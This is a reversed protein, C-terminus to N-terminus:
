KFCRKRAVIVSSPDIFNWPYVYRAERPRPIRNDVMAPNAAAFTRRGGGPPGLELPYNHSNQCETVSAPEGALRLMAVETRATAALGEIGELRRVLPQM